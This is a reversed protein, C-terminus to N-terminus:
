ATQHDPNAAAEAFGDVVLCNATRQVSQRTLGMRRAIATVTLPGGVIMGLVQWRATSLGRDGVLEDGTAIHTGSRRAM